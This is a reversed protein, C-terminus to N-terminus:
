LFIFLMQTLATTNTKPNISVMFISTRATPNHDGETNARMLYVVKAM